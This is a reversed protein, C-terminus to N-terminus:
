HRQIYEYTDLTDKEGLVQPPDVVLVPVVVVSTVGEQDSMPAFVLLLHRHRVPAVSDVVIQVIRVQSNLDLSKFYSIRGRKNSM